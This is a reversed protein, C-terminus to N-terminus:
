RHRRRGRDGGRDEDEAIAQKAQKPVAAHSGDFAQHAHDQGEDGDLHDQIAKAEVHRIQPDGGLISRPLKPQLHPRQGM